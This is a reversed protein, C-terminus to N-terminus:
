FGKNIFYEILSSGYGGNQTRALGNNDYSRIFHSSFIIGMTSAHKMKLTFRYNFPFSEIKSRQQEKPSKLAPRYYAIEMLLVADINLKRISGIANDSNFIGQISGLKSLDNAVNKFDIIEYGKEAFRKLLDYRDRFLFEKARPNIDSLGEGAQSVYPLILIRKIPGFREEAEKRADDTSSCNTFIFSALLVAFIIKLKM